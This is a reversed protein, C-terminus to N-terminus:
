VFPPHFEAAAVVNLSVRKKLECQWAAAARIATQVAEIPTPFSGPYKFTSSETPFHKRKTEHQYFSTECSNGGQVFREPWRISCGM